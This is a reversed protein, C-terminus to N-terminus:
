CGCGCDCDGGCGGGAALAKVIERDKPTSVSDIGVKFALEGREPLWNLIGPSLPGFYAEADNLDVTTILEDGARKQYLTREFPTIGCVAIGYIFEIKKPERSPKFDEQAPGAELILTVKLLNDIALQQSQMNNGYRAPKITVQRGSYNNLITVVILSLALRVPQVAAATLGPQM